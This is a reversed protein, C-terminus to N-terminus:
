QLAVAAVTDHFLLGFSIRPKEPSKSLFFAFKREFRIQSSFKRCKSAGITKLRLFKRVIIRKSRFNVEFTRAFIREM